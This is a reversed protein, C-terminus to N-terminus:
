LAKLYEILDNLGEKGIDSTVGHTDKPSYITWIEELTAAKGDHLYPATLAVNTLQPTDFAADSDTVSSTDVNEKQLNTYRSGGHCTVCRNSEPIPSGDRMVAREFIERGREQVSTLKGEALRYYNPIPELANLFAVLANLEGTSFPQVRTLFRAFRIGCQMYLSTNKGNWKFPATAGIDLLTRNDVINRGLGDPELDYQLRDVHNSPHCSRCSFQGQFSFRASNFIKQGRRELTQRRPGGLDIHSVIDLEEVGIVAIRDELREAVYVTRGDTSIVMGKPNAGMAIRKIVFHRSMGLDNAFRERERPTANRILARLRPLDVVSVMDAGSHSVFAYRGDPTIVVDHPDAYYVDPEDLLIQVVENRRLDVVALGATMMWGREVQVAPLLNKPRVLTVLALDGGPIIAAGELQHANRVPFRRQVRRRGGDILTIESVPPDPYPAVRSLQNILLLSTGRRDPVLRVPNSGAVLRTREEGSELDIVSIDDGLWNAVYLTRGDAGIALGTPGYGTDLERAKGTALEIATVTNAYENSVYATQEGADLVVSHPRRGVPFEAVVRRQGTDVVLLVDADQATAYLRSGDRSIALELPSRYRPKLIRDLPTGGRAYVHCAICNATRPTDGTYHEVHTRTWRHALVGGGALLAGLVAWAGAWVIRRRSM